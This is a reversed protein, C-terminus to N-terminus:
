LEFLKRTDHELDRFLIMKDPEAAFWVYTNWAIHSSLRRFAAQGRDLFATVFAADEASHGGQELLRLLDSKRQENIPGDTSVVEVFVFRPRQAALDVLVVDPLIRGESIDLKVLRALRLDAAEDKRSSESLWVVGPEQLYRPAFDEVVARTIISSEGPALVRTRRNPLTVLIEGERSGTIGAQVAALRALAAPTLHNQRWSAVREPFVEEACLFLEAFDVALAWRPTSATTKLGEREVVAGFSLLGYRLTEDRIPERTNDAYWRGPIDGRARLSESTWERRAEESRQSAVADTMRTIQNPRVWGHGEIADAYLMVFITKSAMERTVYGYNDIGEPFISEVRHKVTDLGPIEPLETERV